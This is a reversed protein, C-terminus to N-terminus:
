SHSPGEGVELARRGNASAVDRFRKLEPPM